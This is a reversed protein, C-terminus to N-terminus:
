SKLLCVAYHVRSPQSRTLHLSYYCPCLWLLSGGNEPVSFHLIDTSVPFPFWTVSMFTSEMCKDLKLFSHSLGWRHSTWAIHRHCWNPCKLRCTVLICSFNGRVFLSCYDWIFYNPVLSIGVTQHHWCLGLKKKREVTVTSEETGLCSSALTLFSSHSELYRKKSAVFINGLFNGWRPFSGLRDWQGSNGWMLSSRRFRM